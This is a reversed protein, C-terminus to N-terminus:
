LGATPQRDPDDRWVRYSYVLIVTIGGILGVLMVPFAWAPNILGLVAMAAGVTIFVWGGLRHTQVWSKESSLTWPTRIGVFWNPQFRHMLTGLVVFLLGVAASIVMGVNGQWGLAAAILVAQIVGMVALIATRLVAYPGAFQAYNARLPDIRPLALFLAYLGLALLPVLLLAEARGGYRDPEGAINWHVPMEPPVRPWAWATAAFMAALIAWQVAEVRWDIRMM